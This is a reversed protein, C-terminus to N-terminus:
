KSCSYPLLNEEKRGLYIDSESGSSVMLVALIRKMLTAEQRLEM